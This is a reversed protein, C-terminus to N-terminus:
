TPPAAGSKLAGSADGDHVLLSEVEARVEPDNACAADLFTRRQSPSLDCAQLFLDSIREHRQSSM